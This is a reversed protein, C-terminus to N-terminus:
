DMLIKSHDIKYSWPLGSNKWGNVTRDGADSKDGEFGDVVTYANKYGLKNALSAAKASRSGSRCMFMVPTNKDYGKEAMFDEFLIPFSGNIVKKYRGKKADWEEFDNNMYPIIASASPTSGVFEVEALTRVDILVAKEPHATLVKHAEAATLYKHQETQKKKILTDKTVTTPIEVAMTTIPAMLSLVLIMLCRLTM